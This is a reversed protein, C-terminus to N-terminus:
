GPEGLHKYCFKNARSWADEADDPRFAPQREDCFGRAALPYRVFEHPLGSASLAADLGKAHDPVTRADGVEIVLLPARVRAARVALADTDSDISVAAQVHDAGTALWLALGGGEGFGISGAIGDKVFTRARLWAIAARMVTEAREFVQEGNPPRELEAQQADVALTVYGVHALREAVGKAQNDLASEAQVLLLGPQPNPLRPRYLCAAYLEGNRLGPTEPGGAARIRVPESRVAYRAM